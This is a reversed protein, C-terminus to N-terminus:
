QFLGFQVSGYMIQLLFLMKVFFHFPFRISFFGDKLKKVAIDSIM